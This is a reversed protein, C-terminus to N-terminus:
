KMAYLWSWLTSSAKHLSIFTLSPSTAWGL